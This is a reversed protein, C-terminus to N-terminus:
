RPKTGNFEFVFDHYKYTTDDLHGDTGIQRAMQHSWTSGRRDLIFEVRRNAARGEPTSNAAKPRFRGFAELRINAAPVGERILARYVNLVRQLSLNWSLDVGRDEEGVVYGSALESRLSATHGTILLPYAVGALIPAIRRILREGEPSLRTEGPGFLMRTDVSFIQIFRNSQFDLDEGNEEWVLGKLPELDESGSGDMAGPETIVPQKDKTLPQANGRGLAFSGQISGISLKVKREDMLSALSLLLVFFTLLLTMLDSFTVLWAPMEDEPQNKRSKKAM